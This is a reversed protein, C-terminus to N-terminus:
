TAAGSAPLIGVTRIAEELVGAYGRLFEEASYPKVDQQEALYQYGGSAYANLRRMGEATLKTETDPTILTKILEQVDSKEEVSIGMNKMEALILLGVILRQAPKYDEIFHDVFEPQAKSVKALDVRRGSALGAMLCLYYMDFKTKFPPRDKIEGFWKEADDRFRFPM